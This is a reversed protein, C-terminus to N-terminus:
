RCARGAAPLGRAEQDLVAQDGLIVEAVEADGIRHPQPRAPFWPEEVARDDGLFSGRHEGLRFNQGRCLLRLRKRPPPLWFGQPAGQLQPPVGERRCAPLLSRRCARFFAEAVPEAGPDSLCHNQFSLPINGM